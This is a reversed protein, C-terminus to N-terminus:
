SSEFAEELISLFKSIADEYPFISSAELALVFVIHFIPWADHEVWFTYQNQPCHPFVILWNQFTACRSHYNM